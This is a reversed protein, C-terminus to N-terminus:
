LGACLHNKECFTVRQNWPAVTSGKDPTTAGTSYDTQRGQREKELELDRLFGLALNMNAEWLTSGVVQFLTRLSHKKFPHFSPHISPHISSSNRKALFDKRQWEQLTPYVLVHFCSFEKLIFILVLNPILPLCPFRCSYMATHM